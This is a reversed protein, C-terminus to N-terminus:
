GSRLEGLPRPREPPDISVRQNPKAIDLELTLRTGALPGLAKALEPEPAALVVNIRLRRLLRDEAGTVVELRATRVARRLQEAAKGEITQLGADGGGVRTAVEVLDNLAEVVDLGGTVREVKVGDLSGGDSLKPERAWDAVDLGDLGGKGPEGGRLSAVQAPPLQYASGGVELFAQEGTSVFVTPEGPTGRLRTLVLRAKPLTGEKAPLAFPGDLQFGVPREEGETGASAVLRLHLEGSTIDGLKSSTEDLVGAAGGRGCGGAALAGLAALSFVLLRRRPTMTM